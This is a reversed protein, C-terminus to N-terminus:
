QWKEKIEVVPKFNQLRAARLPQQPNCNGKAVMEAVLGFSFERKRELVYTSTAVQRCGFQLWDTAVEFELGTKM